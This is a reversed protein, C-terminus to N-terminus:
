RRRGGLPHHDVKRLLFGPLPYLGIVDLMMGQDATAASVAAVSAPDSLDVVQVRQGEGSTSGGSTEVLPSLAAVRPGFGQVQQAGESSSSEDVVEVVHLTDTPDTVWKCEEYTVPGEPRRKAMVARKARLWATVYDAHVPLAQAETLAAIALAKTRVPEMGRVSLLGVLWSKNGTSFWLKLAEQTTRATWGDAAVYCQVRSRQELVMEKTKLMKPGDDGSLPGSFLAVESSADCPWGHDWGGQTAATAM